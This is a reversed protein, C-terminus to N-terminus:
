SAMALPMPLLGADLWRRRVHLLEQQLEAFAVKAAPAKARRGFLSVEREIEGLATERAYATESKNIIDTM